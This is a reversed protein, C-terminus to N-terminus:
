LQLVPKFPLQQLCERRAHVHNNEQAAAMTATSSRSLGWGLVPLPARGSVSMQMCIHAQWDRSQVTRCGSAAM